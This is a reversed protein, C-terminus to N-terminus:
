KFIEVRPINPIEINFIEFGNIRSMMTLSHIKICNINPYVYNGSCLM